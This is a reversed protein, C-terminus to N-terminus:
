RLDLAVVPYCPDETTLGVTQSKVRSVADTVAPVPVVTEGKAYKAANQGIKRYVELTMMAAKPFSELEAAPTLEKKHIVASGKAHIGVGIGSGSIKAAELAVFRVDSTKVVKVVRASLGEDAVGATVERIVEALPVGGVTAHIEKQFGPGVGIVVEHPDTGKEARPYTVGSIRVTGASAKVPAAAPKETRVTGATVAGDVPAQSRLAGLVKEIAEEPVVGELQRAERIVADSIKKSISEDLIVGRGRFMVSDNTVPEVERVNECQLSGVVKQIVEEPDVGDLESAEKVVAVAIRRVIEEDVDVGRHSMMEATPCAKKAPQGALYGAVERVMEEPQVGDLRSSEKIIAETLKKLIDQNLAM